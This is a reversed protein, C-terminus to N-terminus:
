FALTWAALKWRRRWGPAKRRRSRPRRPFHQLVGRLFSRMWASKARLGVAREDVGGPFLSVRLGPNVELLDVYLRQGDLVKEGVTILWSVDTNTGILLRLLVALALIGALPLWRPVVSEAAPMRKAADGVREDAVISVDDSGSADAAPEVRVRPADTATRRRGDPRRQSQLCARHGCRNGVVYVRGRKVEAHIRGIYLGMIGTMLM